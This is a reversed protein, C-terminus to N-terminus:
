EHGNNEKEFEEWSDGMFTCSAASRSVRCKRTRLDAEGQAGPTCHCHCQQGRLTVHQLLEPIHDQLVASTQSPWGHLMERCFIKSLCISM